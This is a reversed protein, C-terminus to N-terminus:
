FRKAGIPHFLGNGGADGVDALIPDLLRTVLLRLNAACRSPM